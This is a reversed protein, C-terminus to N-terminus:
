KQEVCCGDYRKSLVIRAVGGNFPNSQMSTASTSHISGFCIHLKSDLQFKPGSGVLKPIRAIISHHVSDRQRTAQKQKCPHLRTSRSLLCIIACFIAPIDYFKSNLLCIQRQHLALALAVSESRSWFHLSLQSGSVACVM